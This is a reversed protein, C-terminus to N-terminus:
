HGVVTRLAEDVTLPPSWSLLGRAKAIDLQLSGLLREAVDRQGTAAAGSKLFWAPVPLLRAPRGLARAMRRILEPTSMDDGDSILFTEGAARPHLTCHAMFHSLNQVAVFSRKNHVLGLPLPIGRSVLNLLMRFNAKVGPGYVLPPRIVVVELGTQQALERLAVEAEHKSRGYADLPNPTDRETFLGAEGNVKISSLFVFRRVGSQAAQRALALTGDVNVQRFASDPDTATERMVHVRAALHVVTQVGRLAPTWDTDASIDGVAVDGKDPPQEGSGRVGRVIDFREDHRLSECLARGVFGTAGTILLRHADSQSM